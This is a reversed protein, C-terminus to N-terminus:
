FNRKGQAHMVGDAGVQDVVAHIVNSHLARRRKEKEVVQRDALQVAFHGCVTTLPTASAQRALPQARM